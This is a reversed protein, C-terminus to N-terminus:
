ELHRTQVEKLYAQLDMSQGCGNRAFTADVIAMVDAEELTMNNSCLCDNLIKALDSKSIKGDKDVDYLQFLLKHKDNKGSTNKNHYISLIKVFEEFAITGSNDEDFLRFLGDVLFSNWSPVGGAIMMKRFEDLDIAGDDVVAACVRKFNEYINELESRTFSTTQQLSKLQKQVSAEVLDMLTTYWDLFEGFEIEGSKDLDIMDFFRKQDDKDMRISMKELMSSLEAFSIVGDGNTDYAKFMEKVKATESLGPRKNSKRIESM